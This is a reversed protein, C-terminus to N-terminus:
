RENKEQTGDLKKKFREYKKQMKEKFDEYGDWEKLTEVAILYRVNWSEEGKMIPGLVIDDEYLEINSRRIKIDGEIVRAVTEQARLESLYSKLIHNNDGTKIMEITKDIEQLYSKYDKNRFYSNIIKLRYIDARLSKQRDEPLTKLLMQYTESSQGYKDANYYAFEAYNEFKDRIYDSEKISKLCLDKFQDPRNEVSLSNEELKNDKYVLGTLVEQYLNDALDLNEKSSSSRSLLYILNLRANINAPDLELAQKFESIAKSNKEEDLSSSSFLKGEVELALATAENSLLYAYYKELTNIPNIQLSQDKNLEVISNTTTEFYVNEKPLYLIMHGEAECMTVTESTIGMGQLISLIMTARSDCDFKAKAKSNEKEPFIDKLKVYANQSSFDSDLEKNIFSILDITNEYENVKIKESINNYLENIQEAQYDNPKEVATTWSLLSSPHNSFYESNKIYVQYDELVAQLDVTENTKVVNAIDPKNEKESEISEQELSEKGVLLGVSLGVIFFAKRLIKNQAIKRLIGSTITTEAELTKEARDEENLENNFNEEAAVPTIPKEIISEHNKEIPEEKNPINNLNEFKM